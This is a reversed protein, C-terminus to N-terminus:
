GAGQSANVKFIVGLSSEIPAPLLLQSLPITM